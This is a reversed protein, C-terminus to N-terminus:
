VHGPEIRHTYKIVEVDSLAIMGEGVMEDLVPLVKAIKEESDVITIMIPMDHSLGLWGSRHMRQNGGYGMLGKYVTAGAIDMMKLRKVLAEYLLEGEWRDDEGLYVRVMKARGELKEHEVKPEENAHQEGPTRIVDTDQVEILGDGVMDYVFPLVGMIKRETDIVEIRMPVDDSLSFLKSEHFTGTRGYGAVCRTVTAGACGHRYLFEVIAEYLPQHRFHQLANVYVVLKKAPGKTLM